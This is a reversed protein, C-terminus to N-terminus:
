GYLFGGPFRLSFITSKDTGMTCFWDTVHHAALRIIRLVYTKIDSDLMDTGEGCKALFSNNHKTDGVVTCGSHSQELQGAIQSTNKTTYVFKLTGVVGAAHALSCTLSCSENLM